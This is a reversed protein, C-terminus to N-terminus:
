KFVQKAKKDIKKFIKNILDNFNFRIAHWYEAVNIIEYKKDVKMYGILDSEAMKLKHVQMNSLKVNPPLSTHTSDENFGINNIMNLNPRICYCQNKICTYVWQYDWTDTKGNKINKFIIQWNNIWEDQPWITPLCLAKLFESGKKFDNERDYKTWTKNVLDNSRKWTAWGWMNFYRTLGYDYKHNEYALSCGNISFIQHNDEFRKLLIKAYNFFSPDPLIDDEIIIGMEVEGFFWNLASQVAKGCGLNEDRFLTKLECDWDIGRIVLERAAKCKEVDEIFNPRVGDAAVYLYKPKQKKIEEFARRTNEPRNFILFLIPIDYM